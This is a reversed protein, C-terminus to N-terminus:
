VNFLLRLLELNIRVKRGIGNEGWEAWPYAYTQNDSDPKVPVKSLYHQILQKIDASTELIDANDNILCNIAQVAAQAFGNRWNEIRM